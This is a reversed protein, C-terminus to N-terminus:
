WGYIREPLAISEGAAESRGKEVKEIPYCTISHYYEELKAASIRDPRIDRIIIINFIIIIIIIM